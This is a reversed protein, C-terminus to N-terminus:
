GTLSIILLINFCFNTTEIRICKHLCIQWLKLPIYPPKTAMKIRDFITNFNATEIPIVNADWLINSVWTFKHGEDDRTMELGGNVYTYEYVENMYDDPKM